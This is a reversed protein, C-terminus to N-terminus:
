KLLFKQLKEAPSHYPGPVETLPGLMGLAEVQRDTKILALTAYWALAQDTIQTPELNAEMVLDISKTERNLEMASLLHYLLLVKNDPDESIAEELIIMAERYNGNRFLVVGTEQEGRTEQQYALLVPDQEPVYYRNLIKEKGPPNLFVALLIAVTAAVGLILYWWPRFGNRPLASPPPEHDMAEGLKQRFSLEDRKQLQDRILGHAASIEEFEKKLDANSALAEEFSKTEDPGLEGSLYKLILDVYNM